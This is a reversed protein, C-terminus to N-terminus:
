GILEVPAGLARIAALVEDRHRGDRTEIVLEVTTTRASIPDFFRRHDVEIINAGADAVATVVPALQGPVDGIAVRLTSIRHTRVLSRMLVSALVRTDINGGSLVLGVRRGAFRDRDELVAALGVAGAGEAVTKEIELYLAIARETAAESVIVVDDVLEAIMRMTLRGPEKVAIGDALTDSSPGSASRHGFTAAVPAYAEVQVGVIEIDPRLARAVLAIGSILGGGGVPVVLVDLDPADALLELAVTGQGAVVRPDDYPPVVHRGEAHRLREAEVRAEALTAGSQVVEAGLARTNAVKTYPATRPMVITAELGLRGAIHAVGQAHNGASLAVLGREREARDLTRIHNAAGRDKFSGTFQLNEFKVVIDAGTIASLTRSRLTPTRVIDDAIRAAAREVDELTPIAPEPEAPTSAM